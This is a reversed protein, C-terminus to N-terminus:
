IDRPKIQFAVQGYELFLNIKAEVGGGFDVWPSQVWVKLSFDQKIHEMDIAARDSHLFEAFVNVVAKTVVFTPDIPIPNFQCKWPLGCVSPLYPRYHSTTFNLLKSSIYLDYLFALIPKANYNGKSFFCPCYSM